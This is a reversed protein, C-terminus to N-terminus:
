STKQLGLHIIKGEQHEFCDVTGGHGVKQKKEL